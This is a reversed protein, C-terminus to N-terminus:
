SSVQPNTPGPSGNEDAAMLGAVLSFGEAIAVRQQQPLAAFATRFGEPLLPPAASLTALGRSTVRSHVIRRDHASRYREVLGRAELNDLITVVTAASLDAHRSLAATTVEGLDRIAHLVVIQPITLGVTRAVAKSRMDIARVMRRIAKAVEATQRDGAAHGAAARPPASTEALRDAAAM